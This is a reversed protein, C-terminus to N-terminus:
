LYWLSSISNEKTCEGKKIFGSTFIKNKKNQSQPLLFYYKKFLPSVQTTLHKLNLKQATKLMNSMDNCLYCSLISKNQKSLLNNLQNVISGAIM